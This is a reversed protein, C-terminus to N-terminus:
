GRGRQGPRGSGGAQARRHAYVVSGIRLALVAYLGLLGVVTPYKYPHQGRVSLWVSGFAILAAAAALLSLWPSRFDLEREARRQTQALLRAAERPDLGGQDEYTETRSRDSTGQM